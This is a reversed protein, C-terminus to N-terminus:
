LRNQEYNTKSRKPFSLVQLCLSGATQKFHFNEKTRKEKKASGLLVLYCVLNKLLLVALEGCDKSM